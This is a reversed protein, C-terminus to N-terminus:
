RELASGPQDVQKDAPLAWTGAAFWCDGAWTLCFFPPAADMIAMCVASPRGAKGGQEREAGKREQKRRALWQTGTSTISFAQNPGWVVECGIFLDAGESETIGDAAHMRLLPVACTM